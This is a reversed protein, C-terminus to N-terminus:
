MQIFDWRLCFHGRGPVSRADTAPARMPSRRRSERETACAPPSVAFLDPGISATEQPMTGACPSFSPRKVEGVSFAGGLVRSERLFHPFRIGRVKEDIARPFFLRRSFNSCYIRTFKPM